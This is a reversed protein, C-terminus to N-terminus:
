RGRSLLVYRSQIHFIIASVYCLCMGATIHGLEGALTFCLGTSKSESRLAHALSDIKTM